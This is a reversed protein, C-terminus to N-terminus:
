PWGLGCPCGMGWPSPLDPPSPPRPCRPGLGGTLASRSTFGGGAGAVGATGATGFTRVSYPATRRFNVGASNFLRGLGSHARAAPHSAHLCPPHARVHRAHLTTRKHAAHM